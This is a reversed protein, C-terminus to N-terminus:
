RFCHYCAKDGHDLGRGVFEIKPYQSLWPEYLHDLQRTERGNDEFIVTNAEFMREPLAIHFNM